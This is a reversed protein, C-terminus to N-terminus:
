FHEAMCDECEQVLIRGTCVVYFVYVIMAKKDCSTCRGKFGGKAFDHGSLNAGSKFKM